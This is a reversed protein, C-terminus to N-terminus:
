ANAIAETDLYLSAPSAGREYTKGSEPDIAIAYRAGNDIYADIKGCVDSWRDSPSAVEIAVEPCVHWYGTRQQPTLSAVRESSLWAADAAVLASNPLRFGASSDFVEGGAGTTEVWRRVQYYAEGSKRGGATHNPAVILGGGASREFAYEPIARSLAYVFDDGLPAASDIATRM